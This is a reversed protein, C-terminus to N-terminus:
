STQLSKNVISISTPIIDENDKVFNTPMHDLQCTTTAMGALIKALEQESTPTFQELSCIRDPLSVDEVTPGVGISSRIKVIRNEFFNNLFDALEQDLDHKPLM